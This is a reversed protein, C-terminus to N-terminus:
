GVGRALDVTALLDNQGTCNEEMKMWWNGIRNAWGTRVILDLVDCSSLRTKQGRKGWLCFWGHHRSWRRRSIRPVDILAMQRQNKADLRNDQYEGDGANGQAHIDPHSHDLADAAVVPRHSAGRYTFKM